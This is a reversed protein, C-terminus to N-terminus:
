KPDEWPGVVDDSEALERLTCAQQRDKPDKGDEDDEGDEADEGDDYSEDDEDEDRVILENLFRLVSASSADIQEQNNIVVASYFATVLKGLQRIQGQTIRVNARQDCHRSLLAAADCCVDVFPPLIDNLERALATTLVASFGDFTPTSTALERPADM